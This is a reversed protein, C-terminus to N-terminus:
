SMEARDGTKRGSGIARADNSERVGRRGREATLPLVKSLGCVVASSPKSSTPSFSSGFGFFFLKKDRNPSDAVSVGAVPVSLM